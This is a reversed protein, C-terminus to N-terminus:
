YIYFHYIDCELNDADNAWDTLANVQPFNYMLEFRIRPTCGCKEKRKKGM